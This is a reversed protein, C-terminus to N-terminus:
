PMESTAEAYPAVYANTSEIVNARNVGDLVNGDFTSRDDDPTIMAKRPGRMAASRRQRTACPKLAMTDPRNQANARRAALWLTCLEAVALSSALKMSM